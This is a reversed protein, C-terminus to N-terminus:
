PFCAIWIKAIHKRSAYDQPHFCNINDRLYEQYVEGITIPELHIEESNPEKDGILHFYRELWAYTFLYKPTNPIMVAALQNSSLTFNMRQAVLQLQETRKAISSEKCKVSSSRDSFDRITTFRREKIYKCLVQLQCDSIQYASIFAERCVENIKKVGSGIHYNIILYGKPSIGVICGDLINRNQLILFIIRTVLLSHNM